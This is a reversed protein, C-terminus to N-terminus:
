IMLSSGIRSTAPSAGHEQAGRSAGGSGPTADNALPRASSRPLVARGGRPVHIGLTEADCGVLGVSLALLGWLRSAMLLLRSVQVM